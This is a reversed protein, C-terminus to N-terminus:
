LLDRGIGPAPEEHRANEPGAGPCVRNQSNTKPGTLLATGVVADPRSPLDPREGTADIAAGIEVGVVIDM